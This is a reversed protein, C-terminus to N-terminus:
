RTWRYRRGSPHLSPPAVIYGGDGRVDIGAVVNIRNRVRYGPHRFLLHRGGGGTESEITLPMPGHAREWAELSADGGHRPDVDIAIIGSVEGTAIAVNADPSRVWWARITEPEKSADKLGHNTWPHKAPRDCEADGCSCRGRIWTHVPFVAWGRSAYTLAAMLLPNEIPGPPWNM